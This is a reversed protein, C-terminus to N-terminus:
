GHDTSGLSAHYCDSITARHRRYDAVLEDSAPRALDEGYGMRLALRRLAAAAWLPPGEDGGLLALAGRSSDQVIHLRNELQRLYQYAEACAAATAPPLRGLAGMGELAEAVYPSGAPHGERAATLDAGSLTLQLYQVLFDVEVLGGEGRKLDSGGAAEQLRRRMADVERAARESADAFSGLAEGRLTDVLAVVDAGGFVARSRLIAQREWVAAEARHYDLLRDATVCLPGQTGSPRLRTDIDYLTGEPTACSLGTIVRRAVRTMRYPDEGAPHVFILDLDSGYGLERGALKGMGIVGLRPADVEGSAAHAAVVAREVLTDAVDSLQRGVAATDLVGALDFFGVRLTEAQHFRRLAGLTDEWEGDVGPERALLAAMDARSRVPPESGDFVLRDLLGPSRVLLRSLLHSTGFLGALTRLRRPDQELQELASRRHRLGRLLTEMHGLAADPDATASVAQLVKRALEGGAALARPHFPSDPRRMLADLRRRTLELDVFGLEGIAELRAADDVELDLAVLFAQDWTADAARPGAGAVLSEFTERVYRRHGALTQEFASLGADDTAYGLLAAVRKRAGPDGPLLHTQRDDRLQLAHEVRRLFRYASFLTDTDGQEILGALGLRALATRTDRARLEPLKGGWTLQLSQALFEVERIGGRGLKVHFGDKHILRASRADIRAKMAGVEDAFGYDLHRRYVFPQLAAILEDGLPIDGAVPRAKIWALREWPHGFSEYYRELGELSNCIPGTRGEPRLDLDVRFVFGEETTQSLTHGVKAFLRSFYTHLDLERGLGDAPHTRGADSAYAFILDIDSSLNLEGGGLKGMGIVVPRCPSGDALVPLGFRPRLWDMWRRLAIELAAGAFASLDAGTALPDGSVLERAAIGLLARHRAVRLARGLAAEDECGRTAEELHALWTVQDRVPPLERLEAVAAPHRGLFRRLFESAAVVRVILDPDVGATAPGAAEAIRSLAHRVANRETGALYVSASRLLAPWADAPSPVQVERPYRPPSRLAVRFAPPTPAPGGRRGSRAAALRSERPPVPRDLRARGHCWSTIGSGGADVFALRM